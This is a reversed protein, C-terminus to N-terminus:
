SSSSPRIAKLIRSKVKPLQSLNTLDHEWIRIVTWHNRRLQRDYSKARRINLQIKRKWYQHNTQPIPRNCKQCGHWFCGDIFIAINKDVFAIDPKGIVNTVNQRWGKLGQGALMSFLRREIKTGKSRVAQMTKKRDKPSLNDVVNTWFFGNFYRFMM